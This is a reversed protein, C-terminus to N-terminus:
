AGPRDLAHIESLAPEPAEAERDDWAGEDECQEERDDTPVHDGYWDECMTAALYPEADPDGDIEDLLGIMREIADEIRKRVDPRVPRALAALDPVTLM